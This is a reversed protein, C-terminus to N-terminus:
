FISFSIMQDNEVCGCCMPSMLSSLTFYDIYIACLVLYIDYFLLVIFLYFAYYFFFQEPNYMIDHNVNVLIHM